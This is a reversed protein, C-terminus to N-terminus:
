VLSRAPLHSYSLRCIRALQIRRIGHCPNSQDGREVSRPGSGFGFAHRLPRYTASFSFDGYRADWASCVRFGFDTWGSPLRPLRRLHSPRLCQTDFREFQRYNPVSLM